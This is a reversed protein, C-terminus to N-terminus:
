PAFSSCFVCSITHGSFELLFVVSGFSSLVPVKRVAEKNDLQVTYFGHGMDIVMGRAGCLKVGKVQACMALVLSFDSLTRECCFLLNAETGVSIFLFLPSLRVFKLFSRVLVYDGLKIKAANHASPLM